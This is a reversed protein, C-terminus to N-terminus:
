DYLLLIINNQEDYWSDKCISEGQIGLDWWGARGEGSNWYYIHGEDPPMGEPTVTVKAQDGNELDTFTFDIYGEGDTYGNDSDVEGVGPRYIVVDVEAGSLWDRGVCLRVKLKLDGSQGATCPVSSALLGLLVTGFVACRVVSAFRLKTDRM